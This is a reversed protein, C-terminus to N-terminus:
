HAVAFPGATGPHRGSGCPHPLGACGAETAALHYGGDNGAGCFPEGSRQLHRFQKQAVVRWPALGTGSRQQDTGGTRSLCVDVLGVLRAPLFLSLAGPQPRGHRGPHTYEDDAAAPPLESVQHRHPHPDDGALAHGCSGCTGPKVPVVVDVQEVSLLRRGHGEHGPQAGPPRGSGRRQRTPVSPPDSSPPRSSNHSTQNVQDRLSAVESRLQQVESWVAVILAQSTLPTQQWDADTLPLLDPKQM